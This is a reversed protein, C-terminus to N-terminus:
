LQRQRLHFRARPNAHELGANPRQSLTYNSADSGSLTGGSETVPKGNGVNKDNCSLSGGVLSVNDEGLTGSLSITGTAATTADYTKDTAEIITTLTAPTINASGNSVGEFTYNSVDTGSLAAGTQTVTKGNGVNKNNFSLAGGTM